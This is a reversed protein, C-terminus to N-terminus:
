WASGTDGWVGSGDESGNEILLLKWTQYQQSIMSDIAEALFEKVNYVPMIVSLKLM